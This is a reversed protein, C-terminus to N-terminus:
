IDLYRKSVSAKFALWRLVVLLAGGLAAPMLRSDDSAGTPTEKEVGVPGGEDDGAM